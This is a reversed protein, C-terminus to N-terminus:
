AGPLGPEADPAAASGDSLVIRLVEPQEIDVDMRQTPRGGHYALLLETADFQLKKGIRKGKPPHSFAELREILVHADHGYKKRLYAGLEKSKPRGGANGNWQTGSQFM